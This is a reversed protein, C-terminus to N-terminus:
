IPVGVSKIITLISAAMSLIPTLIPFLKGIIGADSHESPSAINLKWFASISLFISISLFLFCFFRTLYLFAVAYDWILESERYDLSLENISMMRYFVIIISFFVIISILAPYKGLNKVLRYIEKRSVDNELNISSAIKDIQLTYIFILITISIVLANSLFNSKCTRSIHFFATRADFSDDSNLSDLNSCISSSLLKREWEISHASPVGDFRVLGNFVPDRSSVLGGSSTSPNREIVGSDAARAARFSSGLVLAIGLSFLLAVLLFKRNKEM